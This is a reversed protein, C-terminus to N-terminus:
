KKLKQYWERIANVQKFCHFCSKRFYKLYTHIGNYLIQQFGVIFACSRPSQHQKPTKM